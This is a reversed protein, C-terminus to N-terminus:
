YPLLSEQAVRAATEEDTIYELVKIAWAFTTIQGSSTILNRDVVVDDHKYIYCADRRMVDELSPYSTLRRGYMIGHMKM